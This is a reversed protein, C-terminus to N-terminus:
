PYKAASVSRRRDLAAKLAHLYDSKRGSERLVTNNGHVRRMLCIDPVTRNSLQLAEARSVWDIMEGIRLSTDFGGVREFASRRILMAGLLRGATPRTDVRLTRAIAPEIEPCVFQEIGGFVCDTEPWGEFTDLRAALSGSPWLDDADLFAFFEGLAMKVGANRAASGGANTQQHFRIPGSLSRVVAASADTSGDDVVVIETPASTQGLASGIAAAVYRSANYCPIVVTISHQQM